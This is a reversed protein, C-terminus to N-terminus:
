KCLIFKKDRTTSIFKRRKQWNRHICDCKVYFWVLFNLLENVYRRDNNNARWKIYRKWTFHRIFHFSNFSIKRIWCDMRPSVRSEVSVGVFFFFHSKNRNLSNQIKAIVDAVRGSKNQNHEIIFQLNTVFSYKWLSLFFSFVLVVAVVVFFRAM